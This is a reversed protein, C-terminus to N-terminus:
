VGAPSYLACSLAALLHGIGGVFGLLGFSVAGLLIGLGWFLAAILFFVIAAVIRGQLLQGLGPIFFSVLAAIVNGTSGRAM